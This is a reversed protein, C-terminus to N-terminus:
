KFFKELPQDKVTYLQGNGKPSGSLRFSVDCVYEKPNFDKLAAIVTFLSVEPAPTMRLHATYTQSSKAAIEIPEATFSMMNTQGTRVVGEIDYIRLYSSPNQVPVDVSVGFSRNTFTPLQLGSVRASGVQLKRLTDLGVCSAAAMLLAVLSLTLLFQRKM